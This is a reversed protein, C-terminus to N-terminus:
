ATQTNGYLQQVFLILEPKAGLDFGAFPPTRCRGDAARGAISIGAGSYCRGM